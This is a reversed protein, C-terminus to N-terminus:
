IHILGWGAEAWFEEVVVKSYISFDKVGIIEQGVCEVWGCSGGQWEKLMGPVSSGCPKQVLEAVLFRGVTMYRM